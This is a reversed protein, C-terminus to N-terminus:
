YKAFVAAAPYPNWKISIRARVIDGKAAQSFANPSGAVGTDPFAQKSSVDFHQYEAGVIVDVLAGKALMYEGGVGAFWGDNWSQGAFTQFVQVGTATSVYQGKISAAAYGGTGYVLWRDWAVGLRPGVTFLNTIKNYATLGAAGNGAFPPNPLAVTTQNEKAGATYGAEVGLVFWSWQWQTGVHVDIVADSGSSTFTSAPFGVVPLNPYFRDVKNWMGGASFGLYYGSWDYYTVVPPPAKLPMDAAMAPGAIMAALAVSGLLFKKM